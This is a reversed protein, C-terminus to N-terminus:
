TPTGTIRRPRLSVAKRFRSGRRSRRTSHPTSASLPGASAPTRRPARANIRQSEARRSFDVERTHRCPATPSAVPSLALSLETRQQLPDAGHAAPGKSHVRGPRHRNRSVFGRVVGRSWALPATSFGALPIPQPFGPVTPTTVIEDTPPNCHLLSHYLTSLQSDHMNGFRRSGPAINTNSAARPPTHILRIVTM